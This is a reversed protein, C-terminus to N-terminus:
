FRVGPEVVRGVVQGDPSKVIKKGNYAIQGGIQGMNLDWSTTGYGITGPPPQKAQAVLEMSALARLGVTIPVVQKEIEIHDFQVTLSARHGSSPRSAAVVHGLVKSNRKIKAGDPLPVEQSLKASIKEGPKSKNTDITNDLMIPLLTGSPIQQGWLCTAALVFTLLGALRRM